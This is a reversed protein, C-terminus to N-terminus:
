IKVTMTTIIFASRVCAGFMRVVSVMITYNYKVHISNMSCKKTSYKQVELVYTYTILVKAATSLKHVEVVIAREPRSTPASQEYIYKYSCDLVGLQFHSLAAYDSFIQM